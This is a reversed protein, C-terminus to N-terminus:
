YNINPITIMDNYQSLYRQGTFCYVKQLSDKYEQSATVWRQQIEDQAGQYAVYGGLAGGAGAGIMTSKMRARNSFDILAGDEADVTMPYFNDLTYKSTEENDGKDLASLNGKADRKYLQNANLKGKMTYWESSKIGFFKDNVNIIAAPIKDGPLSASVVMVYEGGDSETMTYNELNYQAIGSEPGQWKKDAILESITKAKEDNSIKVNVLQQSMCNKYKNDDGKKCKLTSGTKYNVFTPNDTANYEKEQVIIGWLCKTDVNNLKCNEIRLVADGAGMMNGIVGGAVANVGTSLIVDGAVKGSYASAAMLSAGGVGGIVTTKMKQKGTGMLSEEGIENKGAINGALAGVVAAAAIKLGANQRQEANMVEVVDEVTPAKDAPFTIQSAFSTYSGAPFDSINCKIADGAAINARALVVDSGTKTDRTRMEVVAVCTAPGGASLGATPSAWAFEGNPYIMSCADMQQITQTDNNAIVNQALSSDAVTLPLSVTARAADNAQAEAYARQQAVQEYSEAYSRSLNGVRVASYAANSVVCM